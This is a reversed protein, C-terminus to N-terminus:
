YPKPTSINARLRLAAVLHEVKMVGQDKESTYKNTNVVGAEIASVSAGSGAEPDLTFLSEHSCNHTFNWETPVDGNVHLDQLSTVHQHGGQGQEERRSAAINRLYIGVIRGDAITAGFLGIFELAKRIDSFTDIEGHPEFLRNLKWKLNEFPIKHSFHYLTIADLVRCVDAPPSIIGYSFCMKQELERRDRAKFAQSSVIWGGESTRKWENAREEQQKLRLENVKIRKTLNSAFSKNWAKERAIRKQRQEPGWMEGILVPKEAMMIAKDKDTVLPVADPHDDISTDASLYLPKGVHLLQTANGKIGSQLLLRMLLRCHHVGSKDVGDIFKHVAICERKPVTQEFFEGVLKITEATVKPRTFIKPKMTNRWNNGAQLLVEPHTRAHVREAIETVVTLLENPRLSSCKRTLALRELCRKSLDNRVRQILLINTGDQVSNEYEFNEENEYENKNSESDVCGRAPSHLDKFENISASTTHIRNFSHHSTLHNNSGGNSSGYLQEKAHSLAESFSKDMLDIQNKAQELQWVQDSGDPLFAPATVDIEGETALMDSSKTRKDYNPIISPVQHTHEAHANPIAPPPHHHHEPHNHPAPAPAHFPHESHDPPMKFEFQDVLGDDKSEVVSSHEAVLDKIQLADTGVDSTTYEQVFSHAVSASPSKSRKDTNNSSHSGHSHEQAMTSTDPSASYHSSPSTVVRFMDDFNGENVHEMVRQTESVNASNTKEDTNINTMHIPDHSSPIMSAKSAIDDIRTPIIEHIHGLKSTSSLTGTPSRHEHYRGYHSQSVQQYSFKETQPSRMKSRKPSYKQTRLEPESELGQKYSYGVSPYNNEQQHHQREYVVSSTPLMISASPSTPGSMISIADGSPLGYDDQQQVGIGLNLDQPQSQQQQQQQEQTQQEYLNIRPPSVHLAMHEEDEWQGGDEDEDVEGIEDNGDDRTGYHLEPHNQIQQHHHQDHHHDHSLRSGTHVRTGILSSESSPAPSYQKQKGDVPMSLPISFSVSPPASVSGSVSPPRPPARRPKSRQSGPTSQRSGISGVPSPFYSPTTANKGIHHTEHAMVLSKFRNSFELESKQTAVRARHSSTATIM